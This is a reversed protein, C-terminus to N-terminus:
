VIRERLSVGKNDLSPMEKPCDKLSPMDKPCDKAFATFIALLGMAVLLIKKNM